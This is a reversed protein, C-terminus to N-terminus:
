RACVKKYFLQQKVISDASGMLIDIERTIDTLKICRNKKILADAQCATDDTTLTSPQAPTQKDDADTRGNDFPICWIRDIATGYSFGGGVASSNEGTRSEQHAFISTDYM